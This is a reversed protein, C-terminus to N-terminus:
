ALLQDKTVHVLVVIFPKGLLLYIPTEMLGRKMLIYGANKLVPTARTQLVGGEIRLILEPLVPLILTVLM